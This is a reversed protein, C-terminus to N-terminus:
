SFYTLSIGAIVFLILSVSLFLMEGIIIGDHRMGYRSWHYMLIGSMVSYLTFFLFLIIGLVGTNFLFSFRMLPFDPMVLDPPTFDMGTNYREFVM